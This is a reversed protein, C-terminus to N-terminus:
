NQLEFNIIYKTGSLNLLEIEGELQEVLTVVLQLGLSDTNRFDFNDPLGIGTDEVQLSVISGTQTLKISIEGASEDPFAYKLANSVLENVILGCPIAQDLNLVVKDIELVLDVLDNYVRYSHVLNKALNEIYDSFNISSFNKTQYLSEHIFSMSKIRNQSEKLIELTNEDKVYSSQLNLISSIVQLNNKVRHHVEKLLVEKEKLSQRIQSETNKKETIEHALCSIERIKGMELFIPNLFTEIWVVSEEKSNMPGEFLQPKGLIAQRYSNNVNPFDDDGVFPQIYDMFNLGLKVEIGFIREVTEAFNKNFSTIHFNRDLTWIMMHSTSEFISTIKASQDKIQREAEKKYTIDNGICSVEIVQRDPGHIPNLYIEHWYEEGAEDYLSTEFHQPRGQLCTDYKRNWLRNYDNNPQETLASVKQNLEPRVGYMQFFVDSFNQNYSTLLKERNVSWILHSSSDFISQIKASQEHIKREATKAETIDNGIGSIEVIDGDPGYVPNLFVEKHVTDGKLTEYTTEFQQPEGAFVENYKAEWYEKNGANDRVGALDANLEPDSGYIEVFAQAYNQNFSSLELDRNVSWFMHDGSEFIASIKASQEQIKLEAMKADTIDRLVDRSGIFEDNQVIANSSVDIYKVKGKKTVIRGQFNSYFGESKLRGRAEETKDRDEDYIIDNMNVQEGEKIELLARAAKNYDQVNGEADTLLVAEYMNEFLDRYREESQILEEEARKLETVDRSVGMAGEVVGDENRIFSAALYSTFTEGSKSINLIEGSFEGNEKMQNRVRNYDEESAYLIRPTSGRIEEATYGFQQMAAQNFETITDNTDTEMIMDLSSDIINSIFDQTKQLIKQTSKHDTIEQELQKNAEEAVQARLQEKALAKQQTLDTLIVQVAPQGFYSTNVSKIGLETETGDPLKSRIEQFKPIEGKRLQALREEVSEKFEPLFLESVHRDKVESVDTYGLLKLVSPNAYEVVGNIHIISGDPSHEFLNKFSEQSKQLEEQYARTRITSGINTGLSLLTSKEYQNWSRVYECDDFGIFGWLEEEIFIPIIIISVINLRKLQEFAKDQVQDIVGTYVENEKLSDILGDFDELDIGQLLENDLIMKGKKKNWEYRSNALYKHEENGAIQYIYTRDVEAADGIIQLAAAIAKDVDPNLFLEQVSSAMGSLLNQTQKRETVDSGILILQEVEGEDNKIAGLQNSWWKRPTTVFKIEFSHVEGTERVTQVMANFLSKYDASIFEVMKNGIVEEFQKSEAVRNTYVVVGDLDLIAINNPANNALSRFQEESKSLLLEKDIRETVDRLIGFNAVHAEETDYQPFVKEELWIYDERGEPKFRYILSVPGKDRQIQKAADSIMSIDDPHYYKLLEQTSAKSYEEETFGFINRIQPSVYHIKRTGDPNISINYVSEDINELILSLRQENEKLAEEAEMRHTIDAIRLVFFDRRDVTLPTIVEEAWFHRGSRTTYERIDNWIGSRSLDRRCSELENESLKHRQFKDRSFGIIEERDEVEFLKLAVDNCDTVKRSYYDVILIADYTKNFLSSLLNENKRMKNAESVFVDRIKRRYWLMVFTVSSAVAISSVGMTLDVEPAPINSLVIAVSAMVLAGYGAVFWHNKLVICVALFVLMFSFFTHLSGEDKALMHVSFGTVLVFLAHMAVVLTKEFAPIASLLMLVLFLVPIVLSIYYETDTTDHRYIFFIVILSFICGLLSYIRYLKVNNEVNGSRVEPQFFRKIGEIIGM